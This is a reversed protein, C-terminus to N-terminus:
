QIFIGKLTSSNLNPLNMSKNLNNDPIHESSKQPLMSEMKINPNEKPYNPYQQKIQYDVYGYLTSSKAKSIKSEFLNRFDILKKILIEDTHTNMTIPQEMQHTNIVEMEEQWSKMTGVFGVCFM